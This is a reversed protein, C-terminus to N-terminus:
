AAFQAPTKGTYGGFQNVQNSTSEVLALGGDDRAQALAAELVWLHASCVSYAGVAQGRRNASVIRKLM